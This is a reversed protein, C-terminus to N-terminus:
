SFIKKTKIYSDVFLDFTPHTPANDMFLYTGYTFISYKSLEQFDIKEYSSNVADLFHLGPSVRIYDSITIKDLNYNSCLYENINKIASKSLSIKKEGYQVKPSTNKSLHITVSHKSEIHGAINYKNSNFFKLGFKNYIAELVLAWNFKKLLNIFITSSSSGFFDRYSSAKDLSKFGFLAPRLTILMSRETNLLINHFRKFHGNFKLVSRDLNSKQNLNIQGFYGVLHESLLVKDNKILKSKFLLDLSSITGTCLFVRDTYFTSRKTHLILEEDNNLSREIYILEDDIIQDKNIIKFIKTLPRLPKFPIFSYGKNLLNYSKNFFLNFFLRRSSEIEKGMKFISIVSHWYNSNGGNGRFEVSKKNVSHTLKSSFDHILITNDLNSQSENIATLVGLSSMGSGIITNQFHKIQYNNSLFTYGYNNFGIFKFILDIPRTLFFHSKFFKFLYLEIKLFLNASFSGSITKEEWANIIKSHSNFSKNISQLINSKSSYKVNGAMSTEKFLGEVLGLRLITIDDRKLIHNEITKKYRPYAYRDSASCALVATSSIYLVKGRYRNIILDIMDLNEKLSSKSYSFIIPNIVEDMNEHIDSHSLESIIEFQLSIQEKLSNYLVSNKGVITIKKKM